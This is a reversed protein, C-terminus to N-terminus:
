IYMLLQRDVPVCLFWLLFNIVNNTMNLHLTKDRNGRELCSGRMLRWM